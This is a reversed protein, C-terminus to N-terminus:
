RRWDPQAPVMPRNPPLAPKLIRSREHRRPTTRLIQEVRTTVENLHNLLGTPLCARGDSCSYNPLLRHPMDLGTLPETNATAFPSVLAITLLSLRLHKSLSTRTM